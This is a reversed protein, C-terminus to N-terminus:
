ATRETQDSGHMGRQALEEWREPSIDYLDFLPLTVTQGDATQYNGTGAYTINTM